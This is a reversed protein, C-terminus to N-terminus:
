NMLSKALKNEDGLAPIKKKSGRGRNEKSYLLVNCNEDGLAPIKKKSM